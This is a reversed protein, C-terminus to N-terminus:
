IATRKFDRKVADWWDLLAAHDKETRWHVFLANMERQFGKDKLITINMKWVGEGRVNGTDPMIIIEAVSHDSHPCARVCAKPLINEPIYWRDLRSRLMFDKNNWMFICDNPHM